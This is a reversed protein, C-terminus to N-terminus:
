SGIAARFRKDRAPVGNIGDVSLAYTAVAFAAASAMIGLAARNIGTVTDRASHYTPDFAVGEEGGWLRVQVETKKQTSGSTLGGIPVGASLFPSYDTTFGLPMDAPRKGALNLYGALTREIGESGDPVDASPLDPNAQGSQDGDYTFFGANPSALTDFNLYLAIDNLEDRNLGHVYRTSGALGAESSGWFGFRVANTVQPEAGLHTAIELLSAVGSGNDNIGPSRAVSDLHAGVMVVNRTDGTRTQALVNRSTVEKATTELVLKVPSRTRKLASDVAADSIVGVPLSLDRYYGTEFLGEPSGDPGPVSVVLVGAAGRAVAADHKDVLSCDADNVVVIAGSAVVTGYDAAVCGAAMAPRVAAASLGGRATTFLLSAQSVPYSRGGVTLSQTGERTIALRTYEPTQVDFGNDRLTQAVYDVSADYGPTGDARNGDNADAIDQLKQLHVSMADVDMAAALDTAFTDPDIEPADAAPDASSCAALVVALLLALVSAAKTTVGGLNPAAANLGM